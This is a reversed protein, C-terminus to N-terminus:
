AEHLWFLVKVLEALKHQNKDQFPKADPSRNTETPCIETINIRLRFFNCVEPCACAVIQVKSFRNNHQHHIALQLIHLFTLFLLFRQLLSCQYKIETFHVAKGRISFSSISAMKCCLEKLLVAM